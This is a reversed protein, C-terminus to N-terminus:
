TQPGIIDTLERAFRAADVHHAACADAVTHFAGIPCGVCHMEFRLVLAIAGPWRRMVDDITLDPDLSKPKM